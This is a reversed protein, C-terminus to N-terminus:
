PAPLYVTECNPSIGTTMWTTQEAKRPMAQHTSQAAEGVLMPSIISHGCVIM